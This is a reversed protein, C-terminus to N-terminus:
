KKGIKYMILDKSKLIVSIRNSDLWDYKLNDVEKLDQFFIIYKINRNILFDIVADSNGNDTIVKDMKGYDQDSEQDYVDGVEVSRSVVSREGFFRRAPNGIVLNDNFKFSMYGHWPLILAQKTSSDSDIINKAEFWIQPYWVPKLQGHFGGWMLFGFFFPILFFLPLFINMYAFNRRNMFDLIYSLGLGALVAYSLILFGSFKQSDRFGTWLPINEFFWLNVNRFITDGVGASFILACIGILCFIVTKNRNEKSRLGVVIGIVVLVLLMLFAIWFSNYDQMWAFSKAWATREVWFGNGSVLNSLPDINKYGGGAFAEWHEVGFRQELPASRKLAPLLWYSSAVLFLLGGIFINKWTAVAQKTNKQVLNKITVFSFWVAMLIVSMLFFHNSFLSIFFLSWFIKLISKFDKKEQFVFVSYLLVPLIAYGTLVTWQGAIMRSYVFPNFLFILASFYQVIRNKGVPLFKFAFYGIGFFVFTLIIKQVLWAPILVSSWYILYSLPLFNAFGSADSFVKMEPAFIMDLTLVYGPLMMQWLIVVALGIFILSSWDFKMVKGRQFLPISPSKFSKLIRSAFYELKVMISNEYKDGQMKNKTMGSGGSKDDQTKNLGQGRTMGTFVPIWSAAIDYFKRLKDMKDDRAQRSIQAMTKELKMKIFKVVKHVNYSNQQERKFEVMQLAVTMVLLFYAQVAMSEALADFKLSLLIPCSVLYLLAGFGLIRNEWGYFLFSLFLVWNLAAVIGLQWFILLFLVLLVVGRIKKEVVDAFAKAFVKELNELALSLIKRIKEKIM